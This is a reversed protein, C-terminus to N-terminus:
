SFVSPSLDSLLLSCASLFATFLASFPLPLFFSSFVLSISFLLCIFTLSLTHHFCHFFCLLLSFLPSWVFILLFLLLASISFSGPLAPPILIQSLFTDLQTSLHLLSLNSSFFDLKQIFLSPAPQNGPAQSHTHITPSPPDYTAALLSTGGRSSSSGKLFCRM